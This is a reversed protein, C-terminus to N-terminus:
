EKSRFPLVTPDVSPPKTESPRAAGPRPQAPASADPRPQASADAGEDAAPDDEIMFVRDLKMARFSEHVTPDLFCLVLRGGAAQMRRNLTILVGMAGSSVYEVKRFNLLLKAPREEVLALLEQKVGEVSHPDLIASPFTFVTVQGTGDHHRTSV